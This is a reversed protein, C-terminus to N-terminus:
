LHLRKNLEEKVASGAFIIIGLLIAFSVSASVVPGWLYVVLDTKILYVILPVFGFILSVFVSGFGARFQKHNCIITIGIAINTAACVMPIVIGLSWREESSLYDFCFLVISVTILQRWIRRIANTHALITGRVLFYVYCCSLIVYLCWWGTEEKFTLANIVLTVLSALLCVFITVKYFLNKVTKPKPRHPYLKFDEVSNEKEVLSNFCLPCTLRETNVDINCHTCRKM